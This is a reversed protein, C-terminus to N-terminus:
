WAVMMIFAEKSIIIIKTTTDIDIILWPQYSKTIAIALGLYMYATHLRFVWPIYFSVHGALKTIFSKPFLASVVSWIEVSKKNTPTM